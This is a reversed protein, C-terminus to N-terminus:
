NSRLLDAYARTKLQAGRGFWAADLRGNNTRGMEHDVFQTVANLLGWRTGKATKLNAGMAEGQFLALVRQLGRPTDEEDPEQPMAADSLKGLWATNIKPKDEVQFIRRLAENADDLKIPTDALDRANEMFANFRNLNLGMAAHVEDHDFEQRHSIKLLKGAASAGDLAMSLTNWCVVRVATECVLTRMSGDLSTALLINQQVVDKGGKDVSSKFDRTALAWVKRGGYLAGATHIWWGEVEVLKRFFELMEGPQVVNYNAGVIALPAMTDSRYLGQYDSFEILGKRSDAHRGHPTCQLAQWDLRAEKKWVGISAGKTLEQGLGHWPKNGVYAMATKGDARAALNHAM